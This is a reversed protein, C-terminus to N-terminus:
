APRIHRAHRHHLRLGLQPMWRRAHHREATARNAGSLSELRYALEAAVFLPDTVTM